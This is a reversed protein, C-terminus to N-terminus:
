NNHDIFLSTHCPGLRDVVGRTWAIVVTRAAVTSVWASNSRCASASADPARRRSVRAHVDSNFKPRGRIQLTGPKEQPACLARGSLKPCIAVAEKMPPPVPMFVTEVWGDAGASRSRSSLRMFFAMRAMAAAAMIAAPVKVAGVVASARPPRLARAMPAPMRPAAMMPLAMISPLRAAAIHIILTVVRRIRVAATMTIPRALTQVVAITIEDAPALRVEDATLRRTLAM